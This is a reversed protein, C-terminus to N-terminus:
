WDPGLVQGDRPDIVSRLTQDSVRRREVFRISGDGMGAFFGDPSLSGLKPLPGQPNYKVDDPKTWPVPDGAEVFLITNPTGDPIDRVLSLKPNWKPYLTNPGTILQIYTGGEVNGRPQSGLPAYLPPIRSLFQRNHASDWPEDLRFQRYLNDQEIFPLIQVRWSLNPKGPPNSFGQNPLARYMDHHMHLALGIQKMNNMLQARAAGIPVPNVQIGGDPGPNDPASDKMLFWVLLGVIALLGVGGGAIGIILGSSSGAVQRRRPRDEDSEDDDDRERRRRRPLEEDEEEDLGRERKRSPPDSDDEEDRPGPKRRREDDDNIVPPASARRGARVNEDTDDRRAPAAPLTHIGEEEFAPVTAVEKCKPCRVKKGANEDKVQLQKGCACRFTIM